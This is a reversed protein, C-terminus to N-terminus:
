ILWQKVVALFGLDLGWMYVAFIIAVFIVAITYYIAEKTTPWKVNKFERFVGKLYSIM